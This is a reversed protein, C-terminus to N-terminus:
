ISCAWTIQNKSRSLGIFGMCEGIMYDVATLIEYNKVMEKAQIEDVKCPIIFLPAVEDELTQWIPIDNETAWRILM